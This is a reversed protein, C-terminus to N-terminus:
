CGWSWSLAERWGASSHALMSGAGGEKGRFGLLFVFRRRPGVRM